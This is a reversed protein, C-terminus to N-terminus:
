NNNKLSKFYKQISNLLKEALNIYKANIIITCHKVINQIIIM